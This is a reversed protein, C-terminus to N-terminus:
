DERKESGPYKATLENAQDLSLGRIIVSYSKQKETTSELMAWTKPGIVGDVSLGWDRQFNKVATETEAGFSGDAGYKPLKYGRNMLMTQALTVYQGKSGKRITPKTAPTPSPTPAPAPEPDPISGDFSVDKLEGWHTWRDTKDSKKDTVASRIVGKQTGHAEIVYGGGIYLGVHGYKGDAPKWTFVATGPKLEEGDTRKGNSLAGNKLCWKRFMTDSGHYMTSGLQKFAWTFLGSCDAVRHGVWQQGWKVTQERTAANQQAQTWTGGAAGYIYGWHNDLAYQFKAILDEAKIM